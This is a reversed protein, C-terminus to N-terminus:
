LSFLLCTGLIAAKMKVDLDVSFHVDFNLIPRFLSGCMILSGVETKDKISTIKFCKKTSFSISTTSTIKLEEDGKENLITFTLKCATSGSEIYAMAEGSPTRVEVKPNHCPLFSFHFPKYVKMVVNGTSDTFSRTFHEDICFNLCICYYDETVNYVEQGMSNKVEYEVSRCALCYKPKLQVMMHYEQTLYDLGQSSGPVPAPTWPSVTAGAKPQSQVPHNQQEKNQM